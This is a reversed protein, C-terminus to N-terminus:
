GNLYLDTLGATFYDFLIGAGYLGLIVIVALIIVAAIWFIRGTPLSIKKRQLGDPVSPRASASPPNVETGCDPCFRSKVLKGCQPCVKSM